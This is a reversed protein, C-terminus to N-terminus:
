GPYKPAPRPRFAMSNAREYAPDQEQKGRNGGALHDGVHLGQHALQWDAIWRAGPRPISRLRDGDSYLADYATDIRPKGSGNPPAAWDIANWGM